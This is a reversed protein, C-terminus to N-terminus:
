PTAALNDNEWSGIKKPNFSYLMNAPTQKILVVSSYPPVVVSNTYTKNYVDMYTGALSFTKNRESNNYQFFLYTDPDSQSVNAEYFEINDLWFNLKPCKTEFIISANSSSAPTSFLFENEKRTASIPINKIDSLCSYPAASIRLYAKLLTDRAALSSFRLIYNKSSSVAGINIIVPYTSLDSYQNTAQFTGGDLKKSVWSCLPASYVGSISSNFTGNAFKNSAVFSNVSYQPVPLPSKQSSKDLGYTAQWGSLDLLRDVRVGNIMCSSSMTLNDDLPRCFYNKDMAGLLKIDDAMTSVMSVTQTESKSFFINNKIIDNRLLADPMAYDHVLIVQTSNNYVTNDNITIKFANHTMIGAKFCNSVTNSSIEINSCNDDLYIGSSSGTGPRDTGEPAGVGNLVINGTIKQKTYNSNKPAWSYIGGGDDKIMTFYNIFNNKIINSNGMGFRIGICGTNLITNYEVLNNNGVITIGQYSGTGSLGAGTTMGTNAIYNYRITSNDCNYNLDIANNNTFNIYTSKVTLNTTASADIADIGSLKVECNQVSINNAYFLDFAKINSGVFSLGDFVINDQHDVNVLTNVSSAQITYSSPKASGFYVSLKKTAPNYYWEGLQDLTKISNQIFYGYNDYPNYTLASDFSLTSGSHSTILRRDLVWRKPRVVLEAGKWNTSATLEKDTISSSTHSEFTLYGKNPQTANPYRGMVQLSGNRAVMNVGTGLSSNSSEFIGNGVSVWNTLTLFGTIIPDKGAGYAAYVIPKSTTGSKTITISGYFVEGSKFLVSDGPALSSMFSNLKTLSKWPTSQSQAQASTRADDGSNNSFYYTKANVTFAPLLIFISLSLHILTQKM